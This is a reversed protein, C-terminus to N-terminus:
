KAKPLLRNKSDSSINELVIKLSDIVTSLNLKIISNYPNFKQLYDCITYFLLIGDYNTKVGLEKSIFRKDPLDWNSTLYMSQRIVYNHHSMAASMIEPNWFRMTVHDHPILSFDQAQKDSFAHRYALGDLYEYHTSRTSPFRVKLLSKVPFITTVCKKQFDLDEILYQNKEEESLEKRYKPHRIDFIMFLDHNRTKWYQMDEDNFFRPYLQVNSLRELRADFAQSDYLHFTFWPYMNALTVIHGGPAAGVYVLKPTPYSIDSWNTNLFQLEAILNKLQTWEPLVRVEPIEDKKLLSSNCKYTLLNDQDFNTLVIKASTSANSNKLM